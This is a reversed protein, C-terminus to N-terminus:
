ESGTPKQPQQLHPVQSHAPAEVLQPPEIRTSVEGVSAPGVKVSARPPSSAVQMANADRIAIGMSGDSGIVPYADFGFAKLAKITRVVDDRQKADTEHNLARAQAKKLEVDAESNMMQCHAATLEKVIEAELRANKIAHRRLWGAGGTVASKKLRDIDDAIEKDSGTLRRLGAAFRNWWSERASEAKATVDIQQFGARNHSLLSKLRKSM